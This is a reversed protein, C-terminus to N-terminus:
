GRILTVGAGPDTVVVDDGDIRAEFRRQDNCFGLPEVLRGTSLEFVYAHMPCVVCDGRRPGESLSAGSHNCADEIAFPKGEVLAVLVDFPPYDLRVFAGNALAAIPIRGVFALEVGRSPRSCPRAISPRM